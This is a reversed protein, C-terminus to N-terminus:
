EGTISKPDALAGLDYQHVLKDRYDHWGTGGAYVGPFRDICSVIQAFRPDLIQLLSLASTHIDAINAQAFIPELHYARNRLNRIDDVAKHLAHRDPYGKTLRGQKYSSLASWVNNSRLMNCWLAFSTTAVMDDHSFTTRNGDNVQKELKDAAEKALEADAPVMFYPKHRLWDDSHAHQLKQLHTVIARDMWNRLSVEVAQLVPTLAEALATNWAVRALAELAVDGAEDDSLRTRDIEGYRKYRAPASAALRQWQNWM